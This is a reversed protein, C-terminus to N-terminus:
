SNRDLPNFPMIGKFKFSLNVIGKAAAGMTEDSVKISPIYIIDEGTSRDVVRLSIYPANLVDFILPRLAKAQLGGSYKTKFGSISGAVSVKTVAIEQPFVQDIGYIEQEGYNIAYSIKQVEPVVEGNMYVKVDAGKVVISQSM